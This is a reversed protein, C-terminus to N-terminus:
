APQYSQNQGESLQYFVFSCFQRTGAASDYNDNQNKFEEYRDGFIIIGFFIIDFGGRYKFVFFAWLMLDKPM